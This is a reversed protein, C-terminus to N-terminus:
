PKPVVLVPIRANKVIKDAVGGGGFFHAVAGLGRAGIVILDAHVSEAFDLVEATVNGHRVVPETDADNSLHYEAQLREMAPATDPYEDVSQEPTYHSPLVHLVYLHGDALRAVSLAERFAHMASESFDTCFVIKMQTRM